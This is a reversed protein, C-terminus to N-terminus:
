DGAVKVMQEFSPTPTDGAEGAENDNQEKQQVNTMEEECLEKKKPKTQKYICLAIGSLVIM